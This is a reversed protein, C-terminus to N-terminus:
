KLINLFDNPNLIKVNKFNKLRLLHEDGSIIYDANCNIATTIIINDDPDEKIIEFIKELKILTASNLIINIFKSKQEESFDFKPYNLVRLLEELQKDSTFLELKGNLVMEFINKPKGEWGLASILINTDLVVKKKGM